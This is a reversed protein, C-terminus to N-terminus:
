VQVGWRCQRPAEPGDRGSQGRVVVPRAGPAASRSACPGSVQLHKPPRPRPNSARSRPPRSSWTGSLLPSTSHRASLPATEPAPTHPAKADEGATGVHAEYIKLTKPRRPRQPFSQWPPAGDEGVGAERPAHHLAGGAPAGVDRRQLRALGHGRPPPPGPLPRLRSPAVFGM